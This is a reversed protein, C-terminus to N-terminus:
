PASGGPIETTEGGEVFCHDSWPVGVAEPVKVKVRCTVQVWARTLGKSWSQESSAVLFKLRTTWDFWVSSLSREWIKVVYWVPCNGGRGSLTCIVEVEPLALM